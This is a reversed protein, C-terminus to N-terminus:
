QVFKKYLTEYFADRKIRILRIAKESRTVTVTDGALLETVARGDALLIDNGGRESRCVAEIVSNASFVMAKAGLSHPCIPCVCFAELKTDLIPGGASMCYASSGTPTAIILGDGRYECVATGDCYLATSAIDGDARRAIVAENLANVCAIERGGRRVTISILMRSETEFGEALASIASLERKELGSMYGLHGFNVSLIPNGNEFALRCANLMTGDGGLSIIADYDGSLEGFRIHEIGNKDLEREVEAIDAESIVGSKASPFLLVRKVTM